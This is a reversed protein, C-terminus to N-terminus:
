YISPTLIINEIVFKINKNCELFLEIFSEYNDNTIHFM